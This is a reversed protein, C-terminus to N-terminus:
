ESAGTLADNVTDLADVAEEILAVVEEAAEHKESGHLNEPMAEAFEAEEDRITEIDSKLIEARTLLAEIDKRRQKNM